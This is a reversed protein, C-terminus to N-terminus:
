SNLEHAGIITDIVKFSYMASTISDYSLLGKSQSDFKVASSAVVNGNKDAKVTIETPAGTEKDPGTVTTTKYLFKNNSDTVSIESVQTEKGTKETINFRLEISYNWEGAVNIVEPPILTVYRGLAENFCLLLPGVNTMLETEDDYHSLEIYLEEGENKKWGDLEADLYQAGNSNRTIRGETGSVTLGETLKIIFHKETM